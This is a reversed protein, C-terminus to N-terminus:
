GTTSASFGRGSPRRPRVLARPRAERDAVPRPGARGLVARHVRLRRRDESPASRHRAPGRKGAARRRPDRRRRSEQVVRRGPAVPVLRAPRRRRVAARAGREARGPLRLADPLGPARDAEARAPRGRGRVIAFDVVAFTPWETCGPVDLEPPVAQKSRELAQPTSLQRFIDLSAAVMEDRLAPPLFVPTEALRFPIEMGARESLRRQYESYRDNTYSDNYAERLEPIM